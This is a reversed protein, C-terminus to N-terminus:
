GNKGEWYLLIVSIATMAILIYVYTTGVLNIMSLM